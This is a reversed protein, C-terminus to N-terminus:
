VCYIKDVQHDVPDSDVTEPSAPELHELFSPQVAPASQKWPKQTQGSPAPLSPRPAHRAGSAGAGAGEVAGRRLSALLGQLLVRSQVAGASQRSFSHRHGASVRAAGSPPQANRSLTPSHLRSNTCLFLLMNNM